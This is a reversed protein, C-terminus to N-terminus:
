YSQLETFPKAAFYSFSGFSFNAVEPLVIKRQIKTSKM